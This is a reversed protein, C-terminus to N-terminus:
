SSSYDGEEWNWNHGCDPCHYDPAYVPAFDDDFKELTGKCNPCVWDKVGPQHPPRHANKEKAKKESM